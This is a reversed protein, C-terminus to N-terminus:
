RDLEEIQPKANLFSLWEDDADLKEFPTSSVIKLDVTSKHHHWLAYVRGPQNRHFSDWCMGHVISGFRSFLELAVAQFPAYGNFAVRAGDLGLKTRNRGDLSIFLAPAQTAYRVVWYQKARDRSWRYRRLEDEFMIGCEVAVTPLAAALYLVAFANKHGDPPDVRANRYKEEPPSWEGGDHRFLRVWASQPDILNIELVSPDIM